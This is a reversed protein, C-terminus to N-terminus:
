AQTEVLLKSATIEIRDWVVLIKLSLSTAFPSLCSNGLILGPSRKRSNGVSSMGSLVSCAFSRGSGSSLWQHRTCALTYAPSLIRSLHYVVHTFHPLSEWLRPRPLARSSESRTPSIRRKLPSTTPKCPIHQPPAPPPWSARAPSKQPSGWAVPQPTYATLMWCRWCCTM